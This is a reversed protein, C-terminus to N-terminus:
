QAAEALAAALKSGESNRVTCPMLLGVLAPIEAFVVVRAVGPPADSLIVVDNGAIRHLMEPRFGTARADPAKIPAGWVRRWKPYRDACDLDRAVAPSVSGQGVFSAVCQNADGFDMQLRQGDYSRESELLACEDGDCANCSLPEREPLTLRIVAPRPAVASEDRAVLIVHGDTGVLWAGGGDIPEVFVGWLYYRTEERGVARRVRMFLDADLDFQGTM